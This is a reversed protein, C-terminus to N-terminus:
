AQHLLPINKLVVSFVGSNRLYQNELFFPLSNFKKGPYTCDRHRQHCSIGGQSATSHDSDHTLLRKM